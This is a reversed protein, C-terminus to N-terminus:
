RNILRCRPDALAAARVAQATGDPSFDDVFVVEYRIQALAAALRSVLRAINASENYVPVVVTLEPPAPRVPIM